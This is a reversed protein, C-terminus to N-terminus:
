HPPPDRWIQERHRFTHTLGSTCTVAASFLHLDSLSSDSKFEPLEETMQVSTLM